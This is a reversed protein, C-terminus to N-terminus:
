EGVKQSPVYRRWAQTFQDIRYGRKVKPGIRINRSRIKFAKLMDGLGHATLPEGRKFEGWPRDELRFLEALLEESPLQKTGRQQFIKRLDALLQIGFSEDEDVRRLKTAAERALAPWNRGAIDAIAFLPEWNDRGRSDLAAPVDSPKAKRLEEMHDNAFRVCRRVTDLYVAPDAAVRHTQKHSPKRQLDIVISRDMLTSALRGISAIAKPAWTSFHTPEHADGVCRLVFAMSKKHGNNVVGRIDSADAFFTDAEDILLTPYAADVARFMTPGTVNAAPLPRPVLMSLLELTTTKGCRMVPSTICLLPSYFSADHAHAHVIWLAVAVAKAPALAVHKNVLGLLENLLDAGDVPSEWPPPPPTVLTKKQEALDTRCEEVLTDLTSRRVQLDEAAKHRQRDYELRDLQALTVIRDDHKSETDKLSTRERLGLWEAIRAAVGEGFLQGLRPIGPVEQAQLLRRVAGAASKAREKVERDKAVTAIASVIASVQEELAERDNSYRVLFRALVGGIVLAADHRSGEAPYHRVLLAATALLKVKLLFDAEVALPETPCGETWCVNEGKPHRSPPFMTNAAKGGGGVRCEVLMAGDPAAFALTALRVHTHLSDSQFLWHSAPKSKRGFTLTPPLMFPALVCAEPCDLDVDVLGGSDPGLLIGINGLADNFHENVNAETMSRAIDPWGRQMPNKGGDPISIPKWGRRVYDRAAERVSPRDLRKHLKEKFSLRAKGAQGNPRRKLLPPKREPTDETISM